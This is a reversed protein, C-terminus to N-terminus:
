KAAKKATEKKVESQVESKISKKLDDVMSKMQAIGKDVAVKANDYNKLTTKEIKKYNEVVEDAAKDAAEKIQKRTEDGSQPAYLLAFGAGLAAGTLFGILTSVFSGGNNSSM